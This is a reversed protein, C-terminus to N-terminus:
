PHNELRRSIPSAGLYIARGYTPQGRALKWTGLVQMADKGLAQFELKEFDLTEWPKPM